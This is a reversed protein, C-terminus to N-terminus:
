EEPKNLRSRRRINTSIEALPAVPRQRKTSPQWDSDGELEGPKRTKKEGVSRKQVVRPRRVLEDDYISIIHFVGAAWEEAWECTENLVTVVDNHSRMRYPYVTSLLKIGKPDLIFTAPRVKAKSKKPKPTNLHVRDPEDVDGAYIKHDPDEYIFKGPIDLQLYTEHERDCCWETSIKLAERTKDGLYRVFIERLCLQSRVYLIVALGAREPKRSNRILKGSIPRDPDNSSPDVNDLSVTYVWPEPMLLYVSRRGRRGGRGARQDCDADCAPCRLRGRGGCGACGSGPLVDVKAFDDFVNKLYSKSM